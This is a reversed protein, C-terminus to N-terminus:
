KGICFSAFVRELVDEAGIRGSLRELSRCALRIDEGVLEAAGGFHSIAQDLHYVATELLVRHRARTSAPFDSGGLVEAAFAGIRDLLLDVGAGTLASVPSQPAPGIDAKNYVVWDSGLDNPGVREQGPDATLQSADRVWIRLDAQQAWAHARRVGEAEIEDTTDREGATDAIIVHYGNLMMGAEIVDRTTGPISTVIAADRGILANFLSSKGVNPPGILAVRLGERIREGRRDTLASALDARLSALVALAGSAVDPPLDEDPFDIAAEMLALSEILAARWVAFRQDLTGSMQGLAQARQASTESDVLDAIGEAEALSMKGHEFARRTFEGPMAQRLGLAALAELVGTVVARGGHLHLEAADEGTFSAPGAFYLVLAEDLLGGDNDFLKRLSAKRQGPRSRHTLREIVLGSDRGSIRVVCVAARGSASALAYITDNM